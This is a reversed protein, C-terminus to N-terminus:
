RRDEAEALAKKRAAEFEDGPVWAPMSDAQTVALGALFGLRTDEVMGEFNWSSDLEDSPQHYRHAEWAEIQERGWGAPRGRFDTGPELFLAPVGIKAFNFQDSRYYYGRDPFQDGKVVRGQAAAAARAVGDLSSKGYGIFSVDESRGWINASDFNLNAAIKGPPFTPHKSYYESGLLGQEEAAVLLFLVSRRPPHPLKRFARAISLVQAVGSGNDVAGNYIRDGKRDPAGVGLHDFHATFIVAQDRLRPDSGRLLGLVNATEVPSVRNKLTLSTTVGLPVPRFERNRASEVLQDLDRGSLKVLKRAAEETLWGTVQVRPEGEAPLRFQAGSWSTQVVQWPYGASPTTHIIVAGAAGQRAASEYKYTWRGYYLRRKGEFLAPDWDPDNNLLLLVKGRLDAGKFDDWRYEPAQIGYGAFVLEAEKLEASETQVGSAAIFEERRQFGVEGQSSSFTWVPPVESEIGVMQLPQLWGGGPGGPELGLGELESALYLRALQDGRGAPARGELLDDSLFRIPARLTEATIAEAAGSAGSPVRPGACGAVLQGLLLAAIPKLISRAPSQEM